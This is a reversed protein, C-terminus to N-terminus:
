NTYMAEFDDINEVRIHKLIKEVEEDIGKIENHDYKSM